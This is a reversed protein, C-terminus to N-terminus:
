HRSCIGLFYISYSAGAEAPPPLNVKRKINKFISIVVAVFVALLVVKIIGPGVYQEPIGIGSLMNSIKEAIAIM